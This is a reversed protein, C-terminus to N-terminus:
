SLLKRRITFCHPCNRGKTRHSISTEWEHNKSCKWWVKKGSSKTVNEPKLNGNKNPHWEKAINPFLFKLSNCYPCNSGQTRKVIIKEWEHGKICKWWVRKGSGKVFDEPKLNNNKTPHWEKAIKPFLFKLNNEKSVKRNLCYPCNHGQTRHNISTIWEHNKSCKWWVRKGSGKIFDKPKLNNNKTLHWEKAIKPFLFKLNNEKSVKQNSCYPCNNRNVGSRSNIISKWEHNKSCKWWVKENSNIYFSQPTLPYNKEFNWEKVFQLNLSALSKKPIPSPFYSLYKNYSTENVFHPKKLYKDILIKQENNCFNYISNLINNLDKKTLEDKEVIVDLNDLKTLPKHRIRILKKLHKKLFINKKIDNTRKNKHFYLGDYEIGVNIDKIFIDIETKKFKHRSDVKKFITELESLIRFEPKSSQNSCKPCNSGNSTRSSIHTKWEHNKSCKWWVKKNSGKVFDEPKLNNNKTPHWERAINPFLFKLNNEKSVKQNSCYPCNTKRNGTRHCINTEWEHNKSCKWWVKKKSGKIFDEPNLNGNKNPHWEKAINPFLFKLNNEKSVKKNLCYPCNNGHNRNNVSTIWEHKKSCKWWVKKGSGYSLDKPTLPFNKKSDFEKVLNPYTELTKRM